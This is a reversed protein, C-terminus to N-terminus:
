NGYDFCYIKISVVASNQFSLFQTFLGGILPGLFESFFM